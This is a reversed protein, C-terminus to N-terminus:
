LEIDYDMIVPAHDSFVKNKYNVGYEIRSRIGDSVVQTDSRWGDKKRNGEPWWTFEDSDSNVRRFADCYGLDRYLIDFWECEEATFGPKGEATKAHQLDNVKHASFWASCIIYERRKHRIKNLHNQYHELFELKDALADQDQQYANPALVCGISVNDFDAQMYRAEIDRETMGFGTMIARPLKRVYIGVGNDGNPGEFFYGYLGEPHFRDAQIEHEQAQLNQICIIDAEQSSVWDFFGRDAAQIIGDACFSIVRM